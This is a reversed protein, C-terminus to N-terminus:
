GRRKVGKRSSRDARAAPQRRPPASGERARNGATRAGKRGPQRERNSSKEAAGAPERPLIRGPDAARRPAILCHPGNGILDRRGASLLAHEIVDRNHPRFYQLLARQARKEEESKAAYVPKGTMPDLGTHFMATSLTGPTPYFDQVQEPRIRNKKLYLALEIADQVTAGPHSSMLYPVLYQEKGAQRSYKEYKERFQEFLKISPKGMQALVRASCHEPAVKLQGSVHHAAIDRLLADDKEQLLYDYRIGSRVFVKKVGKVGRLRRLLDRYEASEPVLKPCPTPTLCKRHTCFGGALQKDCSRRRFNATPGGVDHIYGKFNPHRTMGEAERIVSEASRSTVARGQHFALSCFNCAGFCGRNHIISFEVEEIAPVGGDRDYCPHAARAFPLGALADLEGRELPAAPPYCILAKDGHRQVVTKGSVADHMDYQLKAATCYKGKDARVNELSACEAYNKVGAASPRLVCSGRVGDIAGIKEGAALRSAVEVVAREAMGYLLMDAGSSVLVSPHVKDAWYDYHAFRRLSAELGGIIVSIEPFLRKINQAYATVARDPRRGARGGPSYSDDSRRRKAATYHAVMSDINGSTVMFGLRPAGFTLYDADAQPQPIVGVRYGERELVRGIVAAGFSPHDVYADGTVVAFDLADWGRAAMDTKSIPLFAAM